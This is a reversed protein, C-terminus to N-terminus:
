APSGAYVALCKKSCFQRDMDRDLGTSRVEIWDWADFVPVVKACTECKLLTTM